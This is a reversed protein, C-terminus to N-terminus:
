KTPAPTGVLAQIHQVDDATALKIKLFLDFDNLIDRGVSGKLAAYIREAETKRGQFWLGHARNIRIWDDDTVTAAKTALKTAPNLALAEEAAEVAKAFQKNLVLTFSDGGLADILDDRAEDDQRQGYSTRALEVAHEDSELADVVDVLKVDAEAIRRWSVIMEHLVGELAPDRQAELLSSVANRFNDRMDRHQGLDRALYGRQAYCDFLSHYNIPRPTRTVLDEADKVCEDIEAMAKQKDGQTRELYGVDILAAELGRRAEDSAVGDDSSSALL